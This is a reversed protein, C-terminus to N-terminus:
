QGFLAFFQIFADWETQIMVVVLRRKGTLHIRKYMRFRFLSGEEGGTIQARRTKARASTTEAECTQVNPDKATNLCKRRTNPNAKRGQPRVVGRTKECDKWLWDTSRNTTLYIRANALKDQIGEASSSLHQWDADPLEQREFKNIPIPLHPKRPSNSGLLEMWYDKM